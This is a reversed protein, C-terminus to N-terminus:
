LSWFLLSQQSQLRYTKFNRRAPPDHPHIFWALKPFCLQMTSCVTSDHHSPLDFHTEFFPRSFSKIWTKKSKSMLSSKSTRSWRRWCNKLCKQSRPLLSDIRCYVSCHQFWLRDTLILFGELITKYHMDILRNTCYHLFM